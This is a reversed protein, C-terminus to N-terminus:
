AHIQYVYLVVPRFHAFSSRERLTEVANMHSSRKWQGRHTHCLAAITTSRKGTIVLLSPNACYPYGMLVSLDFYSNVNSIMECKLHCRGRPGIACWWSSAPKCATVHISLESRLVWQGHSPHFPTRQLSRLKRSTLQSTIQKSYVAIWCSTSSTLSAMWQRVRGSFQPVGWREM